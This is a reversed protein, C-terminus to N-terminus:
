KLETGHIGLCELWRLLIVHDLSDRAKEKQYSIVKWQMVDNRNKQQVTTCKLLKIYNNAESSRSRIPM